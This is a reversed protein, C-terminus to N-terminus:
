LHHQAGLHAHSLIQKLELTGYNFHGLTHMIRKSESIDLAKCWAEFSFHRVWYAAAMTSLGFVKCDEPKAQTGCPLLAVGAQSKGAVKFSRPALIELSDGFRKCNKKLAVSYPESTLNVDTFQIKTMNEKLHFKDPLLKGLMLRM